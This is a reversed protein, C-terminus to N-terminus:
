LALKCFRKMCRSCAVVQNTRSPASKSSGDLIAIDTTLDAIWLGNALDYVDKGQLFILEGVRAGTLTGLLPLWKLDARKERAAVVFWMNLEAVTFPLREVSEKADTPITVTIDALPSRFDHEAGMARFFMRLPSFYNADIAKGSLTEYRRNPPLGDNYDAAEQRTMNRIRPEKTYGAPVRALLNAFSQLDSYRYKNVPRNGAFTIYDKIRNRDTRVKKDSAHKWRLETWSELEDLILPRAPGGQLSQKVLAALEFVQEGMTSRQHEPLKAVTAQIGRLGGNLAELRTAFEQQESYRETLLNRTVSKWDEDATQRKL